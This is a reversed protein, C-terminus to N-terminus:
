GSPFQLELEEYTPLNQLGYRMWVTNGIDREACWDMFTNVEEVESEDFANAENYDAGIETNIINLGYNLATQMQNQASSVSWSNFYFQYGVYLRDLPDNINALYNWGQTLGTNVVIRHTYGATRAATVTEQTWTALLQAHSSSSGWENVPEGWLRDSYSNFTDFLDLLWDRSDDRYSQSPMAWPDYIHRCVILDYNCHDLYYQVMSDRLTKSQTYYISMRYITLGYNDMEEIIDDIIATSYSGSLTRPYSSVGFFLDTDVPPSAYRITGGTQVAFSNSLVAQSVLHVNFASIFLLVIVVIQSGIKSKRSM